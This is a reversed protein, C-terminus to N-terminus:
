PRSESLADQKDISIWDALAKLRRPTNKTLPNNKDWAYGALIGCIMKKIEYNSSNAYFIDALVGTYWHEVFNKFVDVGRRLEQSFEKQWDVSDGSLERLILPAALSASRCAITVGSSFVPDIFEGANGLLVFSDGYLRKVNSSYGLIKKFGTNEWKRFQIASSVDQSGELLRYFNEKESSAQDYDKLPGVAGVSISGDQFPILWYWIDKRNENIIVQIKKRDIKSENNDKLHTFVSFRPEQDSPLELSFLRPLVRAFGSADVVFDFEESSSKQDQLSSFSLTVISDQIQVDDIQQEYRIEVGAKEAADALVKDFNARKVQYAYDLGESYKESFDFDIKKSNRLFAAGNKFQFDGSDIEEFLGAEKLDSCCQPLLSEGISFRPFKSREFITVQIGKDSLLKAVCSGSPGAGIVAVKKSVLKDIM